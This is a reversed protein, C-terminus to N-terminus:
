IAGKLGDERHLNVVIHHNGHVVRPVDARFKIGAKMGSGSKSVVMDNERIDTGSPVSLKITGTLETMPEEQVIQMSGANLHFHCTVAELSPTLPYSFEYEDTLGYGISTSSKEAHYIDCTHNLFDNWSM